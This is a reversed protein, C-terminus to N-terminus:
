LTNLISQLISPAEGLLMFSSSLNERKKPSFNIRKIRCIWLIEVGAHIAIPLGLMLQAGIESSAEFKRTTDPTFRTVSSKTSGAADLLNLKAEFDSNKM